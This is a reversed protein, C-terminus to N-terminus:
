QYFKGLLSAGVAFAPAAATLSDIRDLIGGHGPLIQGSDKLGANRKLMSEVLDGLVSFLVTVVSLTVAATWVNTPMHEAFLVGFTIILTVLLAGILGEWTKGPSVLPALKHKGWARGAFYAGTDAGWILAFLFLLIMIGDDANRIYNVALWCPILVFVGMLARIPLSKGWTASARPYLVVLGLAVVWWALAAYLIYLLPLSMAGALLFIMFFPYILSTRTQKVGMFFSWEWAGVIVLAGTFLCFGLPPLKIVLALFIPILILATMIRYKLM